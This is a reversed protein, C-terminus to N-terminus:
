KRKRKMWEKEKREIMRDRREKMREENKREEEMSDKTIGDNRYNSRKRSWGRQM